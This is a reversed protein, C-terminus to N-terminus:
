QVIGPNPHDHSRFMRHAITEPLESSGHYICTKEICAVTCRCQSIFESDHSILIVAMEQNLEFLLDYILQRSAPDVNATPEDLILIKPQIALARAIFVRQLQGGSLQGIQRHKIDSLHLRQLVDEVVHRDEATYRHFWNMGPRLRATLVVEFVNIPFKHEIKVFQPVYGILGASHKPENGYISISGATIPLMGLMARSLTTKGGGNPGIITLFEKDHIDMDINHLACVQGYYVSVQNLSIAINSTM